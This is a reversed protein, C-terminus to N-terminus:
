IGLVKLPLEFGAPNIAGSTGSSRSDFNDPFVKKRFGEYPDSFLNTLFKQIFEGDNKDIIPKYGPAFNVCILRPKGMLRTWTPQYAVIKKLNTILNKVGDEDIIITNGKDADDTSDEFSVSIKIINESKDTTDTSYESSVSIKIKDGDKATELKKKLSELVDAYTNYETYIKITAKPNPKAISRFLEIKQDLITKANELLEELTLRRFFYGGRKRISYKRPKGLKNNRKNNRRTKAM